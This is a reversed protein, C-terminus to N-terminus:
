FIRIPGNDECNEAVEAREGYALTSVLMMELPLYNDCDDKHQEITSGRNNIQECFGGPRLWAEPVYSGQCPQQAFASSSTGALVAPGALLSAAAFAIAVSKKM